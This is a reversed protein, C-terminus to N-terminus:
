VVFAKILEALSNAKDTFYKLECDGTNSYINNNGSITKVRTSSTIPIIVPTALEYIMIKGSMATQFVAPDTYDTDYVWIATGSYGITKNTNHGYINNLSDLSYVECKGSFVENNPINKGGTLSAVMRSNAGSNYIWSLDGLDAFGFTAEISWQGNAYILRGGYITQGFAVTYLNGTYPAYTTPANAKELQFDTLDFAVNNDVVWWRFSLNTGVALTFTWSQRGQATIDSPAYVNTSTDINFYLPRSRTVTATNSVTFSLTYTGAPLFMDSALIETKSVNANFSVDSANVLNKGSVPIDAQSFGTIALPNVPTPTGSAQQAVIECEFESVPIDDGGNNFSAIAGSATAPTFLAKLQADLVAQDLVTTGFYGM